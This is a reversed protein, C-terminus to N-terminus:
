GSSKFLPLLAYSHGLADFLMHHWWDLQIRNAAKLAKVRNPM